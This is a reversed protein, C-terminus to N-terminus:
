ADLEAASKAGRDRLRRVLEGAGEREAADLPTLQEWPPIWNLEAGRALLYEACERRGGHCAGWFARTVEEATPEGAAFCQEVRELLGLTAADVITTKAGREVLRFAANWQKFGRADALPSGGGLVAGPAEIDAGADLLADLAEVDDSSAAWHLPTEDHPGRFRADVDAGATVLAEITGAVGPFHGPWDTAVHLLTRSMGSPDDDGLRATALWPHEELLRTLAAHDGSHIAEVAATAVPNETSVTTV